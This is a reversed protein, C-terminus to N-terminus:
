ALSNFQRFIKKTACYLNHIGFGIYCFPILCAVVERKKTFVGDHVWMIVWAIQLMYIYILCAVNNQWYVPQRSLMDLFYILEM